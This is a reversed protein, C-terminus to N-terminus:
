TRKSRTFLAFDDPTDVDFGYEQSELLVYSYRKATCQSVHRKLSNAGFKYLFPTKKPHALINTGQRHRDPAIAVDNASLYDCIATFDQIWPLDGHAIIVTDQAAQNVSLQLSENLNRECQFIEVSLEHAFARVDVDNSILTIDAVDITNKGASVVTSVFRRMAVEREESTLISGLRTKADAFSRVPILLSCDM